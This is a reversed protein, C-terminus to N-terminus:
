LNVIIEDIAMRLQNQKDVIDKIQQNIEKIDVKESTDEKDVYSSVSLNYDNEKIKKYSVLKAFHQIDKREAFADLIKQIHEDDLKNKNGPRVFENTADIFLINTDQKNKKLVIIVTAISTGFFLDPPLQIITDVFNNDVLYKRIKHEAGGRYLVGPFEVVAATGCESLWHVLICLM